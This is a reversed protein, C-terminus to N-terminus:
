QWGEEPGSTTGLGADVLVELGEVVFGVDGHGFDILNAVVRRVAFSDAGAGYVFLPLSPDLEPSLEFYRSEFEHAPLSFAGSIRREEWEDRSRADLFFAGEEWRSLAEEPTNAVLESGPEPAPPPDLSGRLPLPKERLPNAGLGLVAGAALIALAQRAGTM